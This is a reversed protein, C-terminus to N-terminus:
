KFAEFRKLNENVRMELKTVSGSCIKRGGDNLVRLFM